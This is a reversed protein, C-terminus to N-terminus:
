RLEIGDRVARLRTFLADWGDKSGGGIVRLFGGAGFRVWQVVNIPEGNLAKAQARIEYGPQGLIRMGEASTIELERLPASSLLDRAFKGRDDPTEPAGQGISVIAFPQKSLDDAPGDTLVVGGAPLAQMVRLGALETLKFPLLGLQEELPTPRFTVSALAKRMVADSYVGIAAEPVEVNILVALDSAGGAATALLVWKHLTVDKDKATGSILIGVGSAFPFSERSMGGLGRQEKAFASREIEEYAAVPLEAIAIAAKRGADEFGSFRKSAVMDVPPELGVRQGPLFVPDAQAAPCSLGACAAFLAVLLLRRM